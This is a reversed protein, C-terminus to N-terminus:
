FLTVICNILALDLVCTPVFGFPLLQKSKLYATVAKQSQVVTYVSYYSSNLISYTLPTHM